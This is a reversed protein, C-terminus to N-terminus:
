GRLVGPLAARIEALIGAAAAQPDAARTIPRGVVLYDAGAAIAEGPTMVRRQDALDAGAPRVGPCVILFDEGAAQRIARIERPSAVVGALGSSRALMALRVANVESAPPLGVEIMDEEAMSTLITVAILAPPRLNEAEGYQRLGDAAQAMMRLGGLAHINIMDAGLRCAQRCAQTVTNPIDHFKLDLFVKKVLAKLKSVMRDGAALYLELGVKFYVAAPLAEALAMAQREDPFDLAIILREAPPIVPHPLCPQTLSDSM